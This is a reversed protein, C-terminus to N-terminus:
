YSYGILRRLWGLWDNTSWHDRAYCFMHSSLMKTTYTCQQGSPSHVTISARLTAHSLNVTAKPEGNCEDVIRRILLLNNAQPM